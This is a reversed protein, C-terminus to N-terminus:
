VFHQRRGRTESVSLGAGFALACSSVLPEALILQEGKGPCKQEAAIVPVPGPSPPGPRVHGQLTDPSPEPLSSYSPPLQEWFRRERM